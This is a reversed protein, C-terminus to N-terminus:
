LSSEELHSGNIGGLTKRWHRYMDDALKFLVLYLDSSKLTGTYKEIVASLDNNCDAMLEDKDPDAM